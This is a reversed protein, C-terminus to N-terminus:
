AVSVSEAILSTPDLRLERWRWIAFGLTATVPFFARWLPLSEQWSLISVYANLGSLIESCIYYPVFITVALVAAYQLLNRSREYVLASFIAAPVAATLLEYWDMETRIGGLYFGFGFLPFVTVLASFSSAFLVSYREPVDKWVYHGLPFVLIAFVGAFVMAAHVFLSSIPTPGLARTGWELKGVGLVAIM